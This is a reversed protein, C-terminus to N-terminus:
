SFSFTVACFSRAFRQKSKFGYFYGDLFFIRKKKMGGGEGIEGPREFLPVTVSGRAHSANYRLLIVDVQYFHKKKTNLERPTLTEVSRYKCRSVMVTRERLRHNLKVDRSLLVNM